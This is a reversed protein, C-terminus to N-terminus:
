HFYKEEYEGDLNTSHVVRSINFAMIASSCGVCPCAEGDIWSTCNPGSRKVRHVYLTAKKLDEKNVHNLACAIADIEAHLFIAHENKSYQSQLPHTRMQNYGISIIDKKIVIAASLKFNNKSAQHDISCRRLLEMVKIDRNFIM